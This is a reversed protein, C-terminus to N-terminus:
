YITNVSKLLLNIFICLKRLESKNTTNMLQQFKLINSSKLYYPKIFQKRENRFFECQLLYHLEDGLDKNCLQCTRENISKSKWRGIEIPFRNNRTRFRTLTRTQNNTLNAFYENQGFTEKFIKYTNGSSALNVSEQWNQMFEDKLKQKFELIFWKRNFDFQNEWINGFGHSNILQKVNQIWLSNSNNDYHRGLLKMYMNKSLKTATHINESDTLKTWFSILRCNIDISLPTAGTEGYVMFSPTSTKLNLIYKLFKLQIRELTQVSERGYLECGYLLIPKITKDFLEIQMTIPLNLLRIKKLLSFMAKRAQESLYKKNKFFKGSRAFLIGLYKFENVIELTEGFLYFKDFKSIKGSSFVLVKTKKTNVTLKWEICYREFVSLAYQLDHKTESLLVTDDAYMIVFLKFFVTLHENVHECDIGNVNQNCLYTELDNLYVSFLFPSLNEGQRVGSSSPFYATCGETTTIKSKINSYMSKIVDFCKGNINSQNMKFWLGKRWVMDFAQKYDIFACYLKKKQSKLIDMLGQIVFLNDVTSYGKRFGAQSSSIINYNEAYDNLRKNLIATFLKGFTSLITIPRYNEPSNKDGKNKYIPLINGSTWSTPIISTDLIM